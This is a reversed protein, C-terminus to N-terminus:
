SAKEEKARETDNHEEHSQVAAEHDKDGRRGSRREDLDKIHSAKGYITLVDDPLIQTNGKPSGIYDGNKGRINLVIIGENWLESESLTKNAMWDYPTITLETLQYEGELHFVAAYDRLDLDSYRRLARDIIRSFLRDVFRSQKLAWIMLIGGGIIVASLWLSYTHKPIAFALILSSVGTVLGANGILMLSLIIRRRVPHNMVKESESTSFGTGTFASRAQFSAVESSLGTHSLAISATRIVTISLILIVILSIAAIM